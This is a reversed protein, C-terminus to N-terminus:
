LSFHRYPRLTGGCCRGAVSGVFVSTRAVESSRFLPSCFKTLRFWCFLRSLIREGSDGRKPDSRQRKTTKNQKTKSCFFFSHLSFTEKRLVFCIRVWKTPIRAPEKRILRLPVHSRTKETPILEIKSNKSFLFIGLDFNKSSFTFHFRRM